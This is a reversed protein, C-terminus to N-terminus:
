KIIKSKAMELIVERFIPPHQAIEIVDIFSVGHKPHNEYTSIFNELKEM